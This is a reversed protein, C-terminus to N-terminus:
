ELKKMEQLYYEAKDTLEINPNCLEWLKSLTQYKEDESIGPINTMLEYHEIASKQGLPDSELKEGVSRFFEMVETKLKRNSRGEIEILGVLSAILKPTRAYIELLGRETSRRTFHDVFLYFLNEDPQLFNTNLYAQIFGVIDNIAKKSEALGMAYSICRYDQLNFPIKTEEHYIIINLGAKVTLRIGLELLVNPNASTIDTVTIDAECIKKAMQRVISGGQSIDIGRICDVELQRHKNRHNVEQIAAEIIFQYVHDYNIDPGLNNRYADCPKAVNCTYSQEVLGHRNDKVM